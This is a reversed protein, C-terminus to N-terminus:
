KSLHLINITLNLMGTGETAFTSFDIRPNYSLARNIVPCNDNDQSADADNNYLQRLLAYREDDDKACLLACVNEKLLCTVSFIIACIVEPFELSFILFNHKEYSFYGFYIYFMCLRNILYINTIRFSILVTMRYSNLQVFIIM